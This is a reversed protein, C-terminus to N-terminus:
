GNEMQEKLMQLYLDPCYSSLKDLLQASFNRWGEQYAMTLANTHFTSRYPGSTGLMRAAVRRGRKSQMLWILDEKEARAALRAKQEADELAAEQGQLDLPDHSM